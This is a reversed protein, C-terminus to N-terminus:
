IGLGNTLPSVAQGAHGCACVRVTCVDCHNCSDWLLLSHAEKWSSLCPKGAWPPLQKAAFEAAFTLSLLRTTSRDLM